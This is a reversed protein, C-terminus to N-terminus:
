GGRWAEPEPEEPPHAGRALLELRARLGTKADLVEPPVGDLVARAFPAMGTLREPVRLREGSRARLELWRAREVWEISTVEAWRIVARRSWPTVREIGDPRLRHAVGFVDVTAAVLALIVGGLLVRPVQADGARVRLTLVLFGVVAAALLLVTVLRTPTGFQMVIGGTGLRSPSSWTM